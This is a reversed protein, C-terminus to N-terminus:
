KRTFLYIAAIAAAGLALNNNSPLSAARKNNPTRNQLEEFDIPKESTTQGTTKDTYIPKGDLGYQYIGYKNKAYPDDVPINYVKAWKAREMARIKVFDARNEAINRDLVRHYYDVINNDTPFTKTYTKIFYEPDYPITQAKKGLIWDKLLSGAASVAVGAGPLFANAVGAGVGTAVDYVGERNDNANRVTDYLGTLNYQNNLSNFADRGTNLVSEGQNFINSLGNNSTSGTNEGSERNGIQNFLNSLTDVTGDGLVCYNTQNKKPRGYVGHVVRLKSLKNSTPGDSLYIKQM